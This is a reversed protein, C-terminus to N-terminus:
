ARTRRGPRSPSWTQISGGPQRSPRSACAPSYAGPRRRGAWWTCASCAASGPCCSPPTPTSAAQLPRFNVPTAFTNDIVTRLGHEHAFTVLEALGPVRVLPNTIREVLFVKTTCRSRAWGPTRGSRMSWRSPGAWTPPMAPSSTMPGATCATAPWCMTARSAAVAPHDDARGHGLRHRARGRWGGAGGAQRAPLAPVPHQQALHVQHQPLRHRGRRSSRARTSRSSWRGTRGWAGSWRGQGQAALGRDVTPTGPGRHYSLRPLDAWM